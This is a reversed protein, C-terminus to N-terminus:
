GKKPEVKKPEPKKCCKPLKAYGVKDAPIDDADYGMLSIADKITELDTRDTLWTVKITKRRYDVQVSQVGYEHILQSEIKDKCMECQLTPAKIIAKGNVPTQGFSLVFIFLGIISLYFSKM